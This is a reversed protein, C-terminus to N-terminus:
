GVRVQALDDVRRALDAHNRADLLDVVAGHTQAQAAFNAQATAELTQRAHSERRHAEHVRALAAPDRTPVVFGAVGEAVLERVDGVDTAVAPLGSAMAEMLTNPSGEWASSLVYADAARLLDPLDIIARDSWEPTQGPHVVLLRAADRPVAPRLAIRDAPLDFDFLDTRM